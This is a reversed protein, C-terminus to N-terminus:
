EQLVKLIDNVPICLSNSLYPMYTNMYFKEEIKGIICNKNSILQRIQEKNLYKDKEEKSYFRMKAVFNYTGKKQPILDTKEFFGSFHNENENLDDVTFDKKDEITLPCYLRPLDGKELLISDIPIDSTFYLDYQELVPHKKKPTELKIFTINAIPINHNKNCSM